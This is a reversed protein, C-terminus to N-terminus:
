GCVSGASGGQPPTFRYLCRRGEIVPRSVPHHTTNQGDEATDVESKADFQLAGTEGGVMGCKGVTNRHWPVIKMSNREGSIENVM